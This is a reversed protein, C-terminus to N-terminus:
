PTCTCKGRLLIKTSDPTPSRGAGAMNGECDGAWADGGRDADWVQRAHAVDQDNLLFPFLVRLLGLDHSLAMARVFSGACMGVYPM